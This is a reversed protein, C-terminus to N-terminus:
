GEIIYNCPHLSLAYEYIMLIISGSASHLKFGLKVIGQENEFIINPLEIKQAKMEKYKRWFYRWLSNNPNVFHGSVGLNIYPLLGNAKYIKNETITM